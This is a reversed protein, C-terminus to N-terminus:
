AQHELRSISGSKAEGGIKARPFVDRSAMLEIKPFLEGVGCRV